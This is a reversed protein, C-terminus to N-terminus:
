VGIYRAVIFGPVFRFDGPSLTKGVTTFGSQFGSGVGLVANIGIRKTYTTTPADASTNFTAVVASTGTANDTKRLEVAWFNSANNTTLVQSTSAWNELWLDFENGFSFRHAPVTTVQYPFPVHETNSIPILIRQISLWRTGDYYFEIGLDTRWFRDNLGPSLPFSAGSTSGVSTGGTLAHKWTVAVDDYAGDFQGFNQDIIFDSAVGNITNGNRAITINNTSANGKADVIRVRNADGPFSPLTVTFAASSSDCFVLNGAIASYASSVFVPNLGSGSPSDLQPASWFSRWTMATGDWMFLGIKSNSSVSSDLAVGDITNGNRGITILNSPSGSKHMFTILDGAVPAAPLNITYATSSDVFTRQGAVATDAATVYKGFVGSGGGGGSGVEQWVAAGVSADLCFYIKDGTVDVWMSGVAYGNGSDENITPAVIATLNSKVAEYAGVGTKRMFGEVASFDGDVVAAAVTSVAADTYANTNANSEYMTKVSPADLNTQVIAWHGLATPNDQLARLVDGVEVTATFFVGAVSVTYVDGKKVGAPATDLDPTNTSADYNGKDDFLGVVATDILTQIGALTTGGVMESNLNTVLTTSAVIFPATGSIVDSELQAATIKFAGVDWDAVLPVTGSSSLDGTGGGIPKVPFEAGTSDKFYLLSDAKAYFVVYGAAPTPPAAITKFIASM